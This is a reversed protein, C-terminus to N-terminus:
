PLQMSGTPQKRNEQATKEINIRGTWSCPLDKWKKTDEETERKQTKHKETCFDKV